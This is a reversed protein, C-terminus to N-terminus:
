NLEQESLQNLKIGFKEIRTLVEKKPRHYMGGLLLM